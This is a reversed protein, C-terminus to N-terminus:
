LILITSLGQGFDFERDGPLSLHYRNEVQLRLLEVSENSKEIGQPSHTLM